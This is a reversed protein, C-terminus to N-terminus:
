KLALFNAAVADAIETSSMVLLILNGNSEVVVKKASVCIWKLPNANAKIEDAVKSVDTGEPVRLLVISHAQTSMMADYSLATAGAIPDIFLYAKFNEDTLDTAISKPIEVEKTITTVIDSLSTSSISTATTTPETVTTSPSNRTCGTNTIFIALLLLYTIM